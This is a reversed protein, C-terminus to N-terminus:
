NARLESTNRNSLVNVRDGSNLSNVGITVVEDGESLGSVIQILSGSAPGTEVEVLQAVKNGNQERTVFVSLQNEDRIIATRPIIVANEITRWKIRIDAVMEPKIRDAPNNLEIEIDYSRTDPDIVNGAFSIRSDIEFPTSTRFRVTASSGEGIDGSFREPVGAKVRVRNTNVVRVVPMGPNILEGVRTFREEVRGSFPAAIQADELMKETQELQAKAQDRHTRAADFDQTSIISDAHLRSLRNYTDEALNFAARAANVNTQIQRDDVSAITEGRNITQGRDVISLIRGSVEASITADEIAEVVGSVRIFDEFSSPDITVTEVPVIRVREEANDNEQLEGNECAVLIGSTIVILFLTRLVKM